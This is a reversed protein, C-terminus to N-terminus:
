PSCKLNLSLWPSFFGLIPPYIYIYIYVPTHVLFLFAYFFFTNRDPTCLWPTHPFHQFLINTDTTDPSESTMTVKFLWRMVDPSKSTMAVKFLWRPPALHNPSTHFLPALQLSYTNTSFCAKTTNLYFSLALMIAWHTLSSEVLGSSKLEIVPVWLTASPSFQSEWITGENKCMDQCVYVRACSHPCMRLCVCVCM